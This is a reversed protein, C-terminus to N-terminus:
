RLLMRFFGQVARLIVFVIGVVVGVTLVLFLLVMGLLVWLPWWRRDLKRL